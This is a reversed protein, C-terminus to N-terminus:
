LIELCYGVVTEHQEWCCINLCKLVEFTLFIAGFGGFIDFIGWFANKKCNKAHNYANM